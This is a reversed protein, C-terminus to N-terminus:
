ALAKNVVYPPCWASILRLERCAKKVTPYCDTKGVIPRRMTRAHM